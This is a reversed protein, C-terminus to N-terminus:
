PQVYFPANVTGAKGSDDFVYVFLRYAGAEKPAKFKISSKPTGLILDEVKAPRYEFDGGARKDTSEPYIEWVYRLEKGEPDAATVKAKYKRGPTLYIDDGNNQKGISVQSVSVSRNAPWKGTWMKQLRDLAETAEGSELFLGYWTSTTEQKNGWLFVYSGVCYDPDKAIVESYRKEYAEAKEWSSQEIAVDWATKETEWHGNPGWETIMYPKEWGFARMREPIGFIDSYTNIGLIDISPCKENILDVELSDLGATVTMTPHNPDKEHIMAAIDEIADWVKTNTYMLDVENGIGWILMAPHDKLRDVVEAFMELQQQVAEENDYDFGHREHMVWLGMCISIGNAHAKDLMKEADETGWTRISNGGSAHLLDLKEHGVAGRVYYPEGGRILEFGQATARVEVKIPGSTKSSPQQAYGSGSILILWGLLLFRLSIPM